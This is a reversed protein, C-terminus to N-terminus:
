SAGERYRLVRHRGIYYEYGLEGFNRNGIINGDILVIVFPGATQLDPWYPADTLQPSDHHNFEKCPYPCYEYDPTPLLFTKM